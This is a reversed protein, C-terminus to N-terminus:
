ICHHCFCLQNKRARIRSAAFDEVIVTTRRVPVADGQIEPISRGATDAFAILKGDISALSTTTEMDALYRDLLEAFSGDGM